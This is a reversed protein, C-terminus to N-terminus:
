LTLCRAVQEGTSKMMLAMLCLFENLDLFGNRNRDAAKFLRSADGVQACLPLPIVPHTHKTERTHIQLTDTLNAIPQSHIYTLCM